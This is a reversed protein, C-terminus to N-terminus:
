LFLGLMIAGLIEFKTRQSLGLAPDEDISPTKTAEAPFSEM